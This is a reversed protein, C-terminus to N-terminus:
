NLNLLQTQETTNLTSQQTQDFVHQKQLAQGIATQKQNTLAESKEEQSNALYASCLYLHM